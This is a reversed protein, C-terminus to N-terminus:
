LSPDVSQVPPTEPPLDPALGSAGDPPRPKARSAPKPQASKPAKPKDKAAKELARLTKKAQDSIKADPSETAKKVAPMVDPHLDGIGEVARLARAKTDPDMGGDLVALVAPLAGKADAGMRSFIMFLAGQLQADQVALKAALAEVAPAGLSVLRDIVEEYGQRVRGSEDKFSLSRLRSGTALQDAIAPIAQDGLALLSKWCWLRVARDRDVLCAVLPDVAGPAGTAGLARAAATRVRPQRDELRAALDPLAPTADPGMAMLRLAAARRVRHDRHRLLGTAKAVDAASLEALRARVEEIAANREELKPPPLRPEKQESCALLAASAALVAFARGVRGVGTV